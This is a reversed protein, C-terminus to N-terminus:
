KKSHKNCPVIAAIISQYLCCVTIKQSRTEQKKMLLVDKHM